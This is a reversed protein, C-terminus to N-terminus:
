LIGHEEFAKALSVGNELMGRVQNEERVKQLTKKVLETTIQKLLIVVSGVNSATNGDCRAFQRDLSCFIKKHSQTSLM